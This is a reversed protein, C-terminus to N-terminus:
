GGLMVGAPVLDALIRDIRQGQNRYEVKGDVDRAVWRHHLAVVNWSEDFVPSGSSGGETDTWYQVVDDDIWRVINHHMGIMKPRGSPHQIIYVRDDAALEVTTDIPLPPFRDPIPDVARVVAWDRDAAAIVSSADCDIVVAQKVSGDRTVEYGFWAVIESAPTEVGDLTQVVVHHNTLILDDSIRFGTGLFRKRGIKVKLQCVSRARDLGVALFVIDLLTEQAAVIQRETGGDDTFGKWAPGEAAAPEEVTSRPPSDGLWETIVEVLPPNQEKVHELLARLQQTRSAETMVSKWIQRPSGEWDIEGGDIGVTDVTDIIEKRMRYTAVLTRRVDQILTDSWDLPFQDLPHTM